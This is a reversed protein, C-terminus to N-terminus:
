TDNKFSELFEDIMDWSQKEKSQELLEPIHKFTNELYDVRLQLTKIINNLSDFAEKSVHYDPALSDWRIGNPDLTYTPYTNTTYYNFSSPDITNLM